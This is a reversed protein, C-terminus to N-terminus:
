DPEFRLNLDRCAGGGGGQGLRCGPLSSLYTGGPSGWPVDVRHVEAGCRSAIDGMRDSFFGNVAVVVKDGPEIMNCFASEMAATGTAPLPFTGKTTTHFVLSLMERIDDLVPRFDPDLHGLMPTMMAQLIRPHINSPGPGLLMRTPLQLSQMYDSM